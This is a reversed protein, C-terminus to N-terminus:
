SGLVFVSGWLVGHSRVSPGQVSGPRQGENMGHVGGRAGHFRFTTASLGCSAGSLGAQSVRGVGPWAIGHTGQSERGTGLLCHTVTLAWLTLTVGWAFPHLGLAWCKVGRRNEAPAWPGSRDLKFGVAMRRAPPSKRGSPFLQGVGVGPGRHLGGATGLASPSRMRGPGARPRWWGQTRPESGPQDKSQPRPRREVLGRGTPETPPEPRLKLSLSGGPALSRIRSLSLSRRLGASDGRGPRASPLAAPQSPVPFQGGPLARSDGAERTAGPHAGAARRPTGTFAPCIRAPGEAHPSRPGANGRTQTGCFTVGLHEPVGSVQARPPRSAAPAPKSAGATGGRRRRRAGRAACRPSKM